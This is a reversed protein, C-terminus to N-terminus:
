KSFIQEVNMGCHHSARLVFSNKEVADYDHSKLGRWFHVKLSEYLNWMAHMACKNEIAQNKIHSKHTHTHLNQM